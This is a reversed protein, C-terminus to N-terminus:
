ALLQGGLELLSGDGGGRDALDVTRHERVTLPDCHLHLARLCRALDFGVELEEVLRGADNPLPDPSQAEDVGDREDVLERAGAPAPVASRNRRSKAPCADTRM